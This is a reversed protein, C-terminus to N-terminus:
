RHFIYIYIKSSVVCQSHAQVTTIIPRVASDKAYALTFTSDLVHLLTVTVHYGSVKTKSRVSILMSHFSSFFRQQGMLRIEQVQFIFTTLKYNLHHVLDTNYQLPVIRVLTGNQRKLYRGM